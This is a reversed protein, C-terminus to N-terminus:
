NRTGFFIVDNYFLVLKLSKSLICNSTERQLNYVSFDKSFMSSSHMTDYCQVDCGQEQALSQFNDLFIYIEKM